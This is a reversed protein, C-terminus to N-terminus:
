RSRRRRKLWRRRWSFAGRWNMMSPRLSPAGVSPWSHERPTGWRSIAILLRAHVGDPWRREAGVYPDAGRQFWRRPTPPRLRSAGTLMSDPPHEHNDSSPIAELPDSRHRRPRSRPGMAPGLPYASRCRFLGSVAHAGAACQGSAPTPNPLPHTAGARRRHEAGLAPPPRLGRLDRAM